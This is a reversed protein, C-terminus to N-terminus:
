AAALMRYLAEGEGLAALVADIPPSQLSGTLAARLPQAVVGLKVGEAEAFAKLRAELAAKSWVGGALPPGGEM